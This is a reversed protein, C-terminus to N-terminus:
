DILGELLARRKREITPTEGETVPKGLAQNERIRKAEKEADVTAGYQTKVGWFMLRETFSVDEEALFTSEQNVVSRINPDIDLAGAEKLLSKVGASSKALAKPLPVQDKAATTGLVIRKARNRPEVEQERISGPEPPRLGYDPPLSLPARSYVTFEDPPQKTRGFVTRVDDCGGVLVATGLLAVIIARTRM